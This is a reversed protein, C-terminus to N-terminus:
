SFSAESKLPLIQYHVVTSTSLYPFPCVVRYPLGNSVNYVFYILQNNELYPEHMTFVDFIKYDTLRYPFIDSPCKRELDVQTEYFMQYDSITTIFEFEQGKWFFNSIEAFAQLYIPDSLAPIQQVLLWLHAFHQGQFTAGTNLEDLWLTVQHPGVYVERVVIKSSM